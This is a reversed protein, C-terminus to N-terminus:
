PLLKDVARVPPAAAVALMFVAVLAAERERAEVVEALMDPFQMVLFDDLVGLAPQPNLIRLAPRGPHLVFPYEPGSFKERVCSVHTSPPPLM